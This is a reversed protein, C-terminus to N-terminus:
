EIVQDARLLLTQPITLGLVKATKLNIVLEFKAPHEVFVSYVIRETLNTPRRQTVAPDRRRSASKNRARAHATASPAAKPMALPEWNRSAGSPAISPAKPPRMLAVSTVLAIKKSASTIAIYSDCSLSKSSHIRRIM